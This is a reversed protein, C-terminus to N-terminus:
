RNKTLASSKKTCRFNSNRLYGDKCKKVCRRTNPNIEKDEPCIKIIACNFNADRKYGDGCKKVCRRTIPNREKGSLECPTISEGVVSPIKAPSISEGVVSPIKAPSITTGVISPIKAPSITTGVISPIKAPSAIELVSDPINYPLIDHLEIYLGNQKLIGYNTLIYEYENLLEDVDYRESLRPNISMLGLSILNNYVNVDLLNLSFMPGIIHLITMGMGYVDVTNISKNLFFNYNDPTLDNVFMDYFDAQLSNYYFLNRKDDSTFRIYRYFFTTYKKQEEVLIPFLRIRQDITMNAYHMYKKKNQFVTEMPFSWHSVAHTNISQISKNKLSDIMRMHGFDIFNMRIEESNYVINQPKLDHHVIGNQNLVKVGLIVRHLEILLMDIDKKTKQKINKIYDDLNLGGDKMILLKTNAIDNSKVWDCKDISKITELDNSPSCVDPKGMHYKLDKDVANIVDYEKMESIADRIDMIKSIKGDYSKSPDNKCKLSPKHVCGYTGEGIVESTM